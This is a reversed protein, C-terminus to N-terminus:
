IQYSSIEKFWYEYDKNYFAKFDILPRKQLLLRSIAEMYRKPNSDHTGQM